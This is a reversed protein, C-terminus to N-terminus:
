PKNLSSNTIGPDNIQLDVKVSVDVTPFTKTWNKKLTKWEQPYQQHMSEGFGFIDMKYKKQVKKVLLHASKQAKQSLEDQILLLDKRKSPDLNTNNEIITGEGMLLVDIQIREDAKKVRIRRGLKEVRLSVNGDGKSVFSTLTLNALRDTIWSAYYSEKRNLYGVLKVGDDKNIIASGSYSVHKSSNLSVAPILPQTGDSMVDVIFKRSLYPKFGLATQEEELATSIYPEFMPENSFIDKPNGNKVVYILSQM